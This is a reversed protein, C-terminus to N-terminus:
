PGFRLPLRFDITCIKTAINLVQKKKLGEDQTNDLVELKKDPSPKCIVFSTFKGINSVELTHLICPQNSSYRQRKKGVSWESEDDKNQKNHISM